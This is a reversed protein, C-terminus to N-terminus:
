FGERLSVTKNFAPGRDDDDRYFYGQREFQFNRSDHELIAPEVYGQSIHLSDGNLDEIFSDASPDPVKFLREYQRVEVAQATAKSVWHVVGNPKLGSTDSGSKSDAFYTCILKNIEGDDGVEVEDCRIIFGYRLRVMEGPALRKWKKPPTMTFDDREIYLTQSFPIERRGLAENQAHWPGDVMIGEGPWNSIHVELPDLVGMGRPARSELDRRICFELLNMEVRNDQKTVGIRTCFDRIAEPTVGRRRLGALTPMRPDDWGSVHKEEVLRALLRKSMVTYELGLRSFEIQPPHYNVNANALVWEYLPRHDEFELTCLSHSIGELADCICHTFDYMPYICWQDQTRQHSIHRIRYLVPDRLNINASAMDIKARLVHEGDVFEGARMRAFLDVNEDVSRERYPSNQGPETLTGRGLRIEEANLSCVYAKGDKILTMAFDFLESFYDSAHTLESWQFGLWAVDTQIAQAFEESEKSPNTDDFRLFSRGGFEEAVGFNLCISKAHGIHLYGNPEPPFRTIVGNPLRGAQNDSDIRQRIFDKSDQDM